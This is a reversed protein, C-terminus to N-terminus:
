VSRNVNIRWSNGSRILYLGTLNPFTSSDSVGDPGIVILTEIRPHHGGTEHVEFAGDTKRRNQGFCEPEIIIEKERVSNMQMYEPIKAQYAYIAEMQDQCSNMALLVIISCLIEVYPWKLLFLHKKM